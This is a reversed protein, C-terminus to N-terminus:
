VKSCYTKSLVLTMIMSLRLKELQQINNEETKVKDVKSTSSSNGKCISLLRETTNKSVLNFVDDLVKSVIEKTLDANERLLVSM